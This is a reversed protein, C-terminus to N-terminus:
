LVLNCYCCAKSELRSTCYEVANKGLVKLCVPALGRFHFCITICPSRGSVPSTKYSEQKFRKRKRKKFGRERTWACWYMIKKALALTWHLIFCLVTKSTFAPEKRRFGDRITRSELLSKSFHRNRVHRLEQSRLSGNCSGKLMWCQLIYRMCTSYKKVNASM